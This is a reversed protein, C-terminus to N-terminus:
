VDGGGSGPRSAAESGDWLKGSLGMLNTFSGSGGTLTGESAAGSGPGLGGGGGGGGGSGQSSSPDGIPRSGPAKNASPAAGGQKGRRNGKGRGADGGIPQSSGAGIPKPAVPAPPPLLPNKGQGWAEPPPPPISVKPKEKPKEKPAAAEEAGRGKKGGSKEVKRQARKLKRAEAAAREKEERELRRQKRREKREKEAAVEAETPEPKDADVIEGSTGKVYKYLKGQTRPPRSLREAKRAAKRAEKAELRSAEQFAEAEASSEDKSFRGQLGGKGGEGKGKGKGDGKGPGRLLVKAPAGQGAPKGGEPMGAQPPRNGAPAGGDGGGGGVDAAAAQPGVAHDVFKGARPDFLQRTVKSAEGGREGREASGSNVGPPHGAGDGSGQPYLRERPAMEDLSVPPPVHADHLPADEAVPRLRPSGQPRLSPSSGPTRRGPMAESNGGSSPQLISTGGFLSSFSRSPDVGPREEPVSAAAAASDGLPGVGLAPRSGPPRRAQEAQQGHEQPAPEPVREGRRWSLAATTAPSKDAASAAASAAASPQPEPSQSASSPPDLREMKSEVHAMKARAKERRVREAEAEEHQRRERRQKAMRTMYESQSEGPLPSFGPIDGPLESEGHAAPPPPPPPPASPPPPPPPPPRTATAQPSTSSALRDGQGLQGSEGPQQPPADASAPARYPRDPPPGYRDYARAMAPPASGDHGGARREYGGPANFGQQPPPAVRPGSRWSERTGNTDAPRGDGFRDGFKGEAPRDGFRNPPNGQRDYGGGERRDYGGERRDYGPRDYGGERRDYGGERRDYGTRDYGPREYAAPPRPDEGDTQRLMGALGETTKLGVGAGGPRLGRDDSAALGPFQQQPPTPQKANGKADGGHLDDDDSDDADLDGWKMGKTAGKIGGLTPSNGLLPSGTKSATALSPQGAGAGSAWGARGTTAATTSRGWPVAKPKGADAPSPPEQPACGEGQGGAGGREDREGQEPKAGWTSGAPGSPVLQVTTDQGGAEKRLSPTNLPIPAAPGGITTTAKASGVKGLSLLRGGPGYRSSAAAPAPAAKTLANLNSGFGKKKSEPKGAPKM